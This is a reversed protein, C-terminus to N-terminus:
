NRGIAWPSRCPDGELFKGSALNQENLRSCIHRKICEYSQAHPDDLGATAPLYKPFDDSRAFPFLGQSGVASDDLKEHVKSGAINGATEPSEVM